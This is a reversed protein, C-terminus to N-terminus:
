KENYFLQQYLSQISHRSILYNRDKDTLQKHTATSFCMFDGEFRYIRYDKTLFILTAKLEEIDLHKMELLILSPKFRKLDIQKLIKWDHGECDIRLLNIQRVGHKQFLTDMTIGQIRKSVIYPDLIGNLHKSIHSKDFSGLQDYWDPLNGLIYKAKKDVWFFDQSTGNNIASNEFSFRPSDLYHAKLKEFLYPVPEVFLVEWKKNRLISEYLPDKTKGDNAGIQVVTWSKKDGCNQIWFDVQTKTDSPTMLSGLFTSM